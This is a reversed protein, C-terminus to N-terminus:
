AIFYKEEKEQSFNRSMMNYIIKKEKPTFLLALFYFLYDEDTFFLALTKKQSSKLQKKSKIMAELSNM